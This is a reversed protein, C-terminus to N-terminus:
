QAGLSDIMGDQNQSCRWWVFCFLQTLVINGLCYKRQLICFFQLLLCLSGTYRNSTVDLHVGAHASDAKFRILVHVLRDLLDFLDAVKFIQAAITDEGMEGARILVIVIRDVIGAALVFTKHFGTVAELALSNM